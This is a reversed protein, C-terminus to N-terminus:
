RLNRSLHPGAHVELSRALQASSMELLAQHCLATPLSLSRRMGPQCFREDDEDTRHRRRAPRARPASSGLEGCSLNNKATSPVSWSSPAACGPRGSSADGRARSLPIQETPTCVFREYLAALLLQGSRRDQKVRLRESLKRLSPSPPSSSAPDDEEV